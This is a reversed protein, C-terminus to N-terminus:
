ESCPVSGGASALGKLKDNNESERKKGRADQLGAAQVRDGGWGEDHALVRTCRCGKPKRHRHTNKKPKKPKKLYM